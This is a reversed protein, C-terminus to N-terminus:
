NWDIREMTNIGANLANSAFGDLTFFSFAATGPGVGCNTTSDDAAGDTDSGVWLCSDGTTWHVATHYDIATTAVLDPTDYLTAPFGSDGTFAGGPFCASAGGVSALPASVDPTNGSPDQTLNAQYIGVEGWCQNGCFDWTVAEVALLNNVVACGPSSGPGTHGMHVNFYDKSGAPNQVKWIINNYGGDDRIGFCLSPCCIGSQVISLTATNTLKIKPKGNKKLDLNDAFFAEWTLTVGVASCPAPGDLQGLNPVPIPTFNELGTQLIIAPIPIFPGVVIGELYKTPNVTDSSWFQLALTTGAQVTAATSGNILFAGGNPTPPSGALRMMWNMHTFPYSAPTVYDDTTFFTHRPGTHSSGNSAFLDTCLWTSSDGTPFATSIHVGGTGLVVDPTDYTTFGTASTPCFIGVAPGGTPNTLMALPNNLDPTRGSADLALNDPFLGVYKLSASGSTVYIELACGMAVSGAGDANFDVDFGEGAASPFNIKFSTEAGGDDYSIQSLFAGINGPITQATAAAAALGLVGVSAFWKRM